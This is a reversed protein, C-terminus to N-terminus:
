RKVGTRRVLGGLKRSAAVASAQDPFPGAMMLRLARGESVITEERVPYGRAEIAKRAAEASSDMAYAGVQVVYGAESPPPATAAPAPGSNAAPAAAAPAESANLAVFLGTPREELRADVPRRFFVMVRTVLPKKEVETVELRRVLQRGELPMPNVVRYGVLDLVLSPPDAVAQSRCSVRSGADFRIGSKALSIRVPVAASDGPLAGRGEPVSGAAVNRTERAPGAVAQRVAGSSTAVSGKAVGYDFFVSAVLEGEPVKGEGEGEFKRAQGPFVPDGAFPVVLLEVDGAPTKQELLWTGSPRLLTNGENKLTARFHFRGKADRVADFSTVRAARSETGRVTVYVPVLVQPETVVGLGKSARAESPITVLIGGWITGSATAPATVRVRASGGTEGELDLREPSVEIFSKPPFPESAPADFSVDGTESLRFSTVSLKYSSVAPDTNNVSITVTRSEGPALDMEIRAPGVVMGRAFALSPALLPVSLALAFLYRLPSRIKEEM